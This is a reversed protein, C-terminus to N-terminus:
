MQLLIDCNNHNPQVSEASLCVVLTELAESIGQIVNTAKNTSLEALCQNAHLLLQVTVLM